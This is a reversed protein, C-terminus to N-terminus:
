CCFGGGGGFRPNVINNFISGFSYSVSFSMYYSYGSALQRQRVLIEETTAEGRRLNIQDRTRSAEGFVNFEFGKFLRVSADGFASLRYKDPDTLYQTFNVSMGVTGWPQRLSLGSELRHDLLKEETKDYITVETYDNYNGGVTYQVTFMRRTSDAYPFFNYEVGPAIRVRWEYNLFTSSSANGMLGLSWHQNLGKVFIGNADVNRSISKYTETDSLDYNNVSYNMSAALSMRNLETTRTASASGRVSHYDTSQEGSLNGGVGARFVWLNWPDNKPDSAKATAGAQPAEFTIKLKAALPSESVYRILGRKLVELIGNRIEDSTSTNTSFYRLTQEVNAFRGLGIFKLTYESGGGGTGQSTVLVHVDADARDRMWDVFTIEKKLFEQDCQWQCDLFMRIAGTKASAPATQQGRAPGSLFLSILLLFLFPLCARRAMDRM